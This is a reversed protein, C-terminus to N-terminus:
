QRRYTLKRKGGSVLSQLGIWDGDATYWLEVPQEPGNIRYHKASQTKGQAEFKDDGLSEIKVAEYRGTQANLLHTQKLMGPHWYAFSMVCGGLKEVGKKTQVALTDDDKKTTVTSVRGNDDTRAEMSALCDGAWMETATHRYRYVSIGFVKVTFDAASKLERQEGSAKLAFTHQGIPKDDLQVAFNWTGSAPGEAHAAVSTSMSAATVLVTAFSRSVVTM